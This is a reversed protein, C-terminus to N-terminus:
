TRISFAILLLRLPDESKLNLRAELELPLERRGVVDL